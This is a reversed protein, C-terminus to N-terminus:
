RRERLRQTLDIIEACAPARGPDYPAASGARDPAGSPPGDLALATSGAMPWAPGAPVVREPRLRARAEALLVIEASEEGAPSAALYAALMDRTRAVAEACIAEAPELLPRRSRDAPFPIVNSM